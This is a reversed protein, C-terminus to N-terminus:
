GIEDDKDDDDDVHKPNDKHSGLDLRNESDNDDKNGEVVKQKRVTIKLSKHPSSSEGASQKRKKGQPSATLTPTRHARPTSEKFDDTARIEETIFADLILMGRVRADRTTYVSVLPIDDKISHYYEEIRKSIELFKKMLDAIILKIVELIISFAEKKDVVGQYGVKNMSVKITEINIPAVFPNDPTEVPLQLIYLLYMLLPHDLLIQGVIKCGPSCPISQLVVYNNCRGIKHFRPVLQAALIVQQAMYFIQTDCYIPIKNYRFGYDRLQTRMWIVQACCASLSVYGAEATSMTTCDQKKSSWSVLKDRLFQIGGSTTKCDDNCGVFDADSYTILEFGSDKSYWLGMNITQRLYRSIRKVEKLHKETPHTQYRAYVFTAFALDPRSSTLYMLGGIM